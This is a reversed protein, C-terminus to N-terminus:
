RWALVLRDSDESIAPALLRRSERGSYTVLRYYYYAGPSVLIQTGPALTHYEPEQGTLSVKLWVTGADIWKIAAINRANATLLITIEAAACCPVHSEEEIPQTGTAQAYANVGKQYVDSIAALYREELQRQTEEDHFQSSRIYDDILADIERFYPTWFSRQEGTLHKNFWEIQLREHMPLSEGDIGTYGIRWHLHGENCTYFEPAISGAPIRNSRHVIEVAMQRIQEHKATRQIPEYRQAKATNSAILILAVCLFPHRLVRPSTEIALARTVTPGGLSLRTPFM